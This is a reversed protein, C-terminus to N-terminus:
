FFYLFCCVELDEEVTSRIHRMGILHRKYDSVHFNLFTFCLCLLRKKIEEWQVLFRVFFNSVRNEILKMFIAQVHHHATTLIVVISGCHWSYMRSYLASDLLYIWFCYKKRTPIVREIKRAKMWHSRGFERIFRECNHFPYVGKKRDRRM